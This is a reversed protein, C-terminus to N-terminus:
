NKENLKLFVRATMLADNLGRHATESTISLSKVVSMLKYNHLFLKSKALVFVDSTEFDFELSNQQYANQLFKDDFNASNYGILISGKAFNDFEKLVESLNPANEVMKNNIGTINTILAPIENKPKVLNSFQKTIEGNEIKLAGIEIIENKTPELGTTELDYVVFTNSMIYDNYEVKKDLFNSQAIENFFEPKEVIKNENQKQIIKKSEEIINCLNISSIKALPYDGDKVIDAIIVVSDGDKLVDMKNLNAKPSFYIASIKKKGENLIFKYYYKEVEVGKRTKKYSRKLLNEIKGALIVSNKPPKINALFEPHPKIEKGVLKFTINVDYRPTLIRESARTELSKQISIDVKEFNINQTKEFTCSFEGCFNQKLYTSIEYELKEINKGEYFDTPIKININVDFINKQIDINEFAIENAISAYNKKLFGLIQNKILEDDLFSKKFKVDLKASLNLTQRLFEIIKEKDPQEFNKNEPYLFTICCSFKAKNYEVKLLKLFLFEDCFQKNILDIIKEM